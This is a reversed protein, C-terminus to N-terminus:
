LFEARNERDFREIDAIIDPVQFDSKTASLTQADTIQLSFQMTIGSGLSNKEFATIEVQYPSNKATGSSAAGTVLGTAEDISLGEPLGKASLGINSVDLGFEIFKEITDIEVPSNEAFEFYDPSVKFDDAALTCNVNIIAKASNGESDIAYVAFSLNDAGAANMPVTGTIDGNTRDLFLWDPMIASVYSINTRVLSGFLGATGIVIDEGCDLSIKRCCIETPLNTQECFFEGDQQLGCEDVIATPKAPGEEDPDPKDPTNIADTSFEMAITQAQEILAGVSKPQIKVNPESPPIEASIKRLDKFSADVQLTVEAPQDPDCDSKLFLFIVASGSPIRACWHDTQNAPGGIVIQEGSFLIGSNSKDIQGDPEIIEALGTGRWSAVLRAGALIETSGKISIDVYNVECDQDPKISFIYNLQPHQRDSRDNLPREEFASTTNAVTIGNDGATFNACSTFGSHKKRLLVFSGSGNKDSIKGRAINALNSSTTFLPKM